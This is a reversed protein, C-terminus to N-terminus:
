SETQLGSHGSASPHRFDIARKGPEVLQFGRKGALRNPPPGSQYFRRGRLRRRYIGTLPLSRTGETLPGGPPQWGVPTGRTEPARRTTPRETDSLLSDTTEVRLGRNSWGIYRDRVGFGVSEVPSGADADDLSAGLEAADVNPLWAVLGVDAITTKDIYHWPNICEETGCIRSRGAPIELVAALEHRRTRRAETSADGRLMWCDGGGDFPAAHLEIGITWSSSLDAPAEFRRRRRQREASCPRCYAYYGSKTSRSRPFETLPRTLECKPCRRFATDGPSAMM